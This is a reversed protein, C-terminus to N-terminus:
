PSDGEAATIIADFRAGHKHHDALRAGRAMERWVLGRDEPGLRRDRRSREVLWVRSM